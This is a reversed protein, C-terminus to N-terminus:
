PTCMTANQYPYSDVDNFQGDSDSDIQSLECGHTNLPNITPAFTCYDLDDTVGDGDSDDTTHPCGAASVVTGAPTGPCNEISDPVGDRDTDQVIIIKRVASPESCLGGGCALIRFSYTGAILNVATFSVATGNYVTTWSNSNPALAQLKYSTAGIPSAAWNIVASHPGGYIVNYLLPSQPAFWVKFTMLVNNMLMYRTEEVQASVFQMPLLFMSVFAVALASPRGAYRGLFSLSGSAKWM